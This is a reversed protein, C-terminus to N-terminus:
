RAPERRCRLRYLFLVLFACGYLAAVFRIMNTEGGQGLVTLLLPTGTLNGINGTQALLGFSLARTQASHNLEPIAAFSAGQVLGLVTFLVITMVPLSLSGSLLVAALAGLFGALVLTSPGVFRMLVPVATLSVVIGLLPLLTLVDERIAAPMREPLIALLSVFTLTYFLWGAGPSAIRSSRCAQILDALVSATRPGPTEVTPLDDKGLLVSLLGASLLMLAGHTVFLAPLGFAEVQPLGVWAVVTFSVGFFSSWLAMAAGRYRDSSAQAILTPAAIVIALHSGGELIRSVAFLPIGPLSAQWFSLFAGLVLGGLLMRRLGVRHVLAGAILGLGAGVLSVLSLLWGVSTGADPYLTQFAIFPVAIKAFQGAACLGAIWLILIKIVSAPNGRM